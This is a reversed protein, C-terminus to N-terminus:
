GEAYRLTRPHTYPYSGVIWKFAFSGDPHTSVMENYSGGWGANFRNYDGNGKWLLIGNNFTIDDPSIDNPQIHGTVFAVKHFYAIDGSIQSANNMLWTENADTIRARKNTGDLYEIRFGSSSAAIKPIIQAWESVNVSFSYESDGITSLAGGRVHLGDGLTLMQQANSTDVAVLSMSEPANMPTVLARSLKAVIESDLHIEVSRGDEAVDIIISDNTTLPLIMTSPIEFIENGAEVKMTGSLEFGNEINSLVPSPIINIKTTDDFGIGRPLTLVPSEVYDGNEFTFKLKAETESVQEVSVDTLVANNLAAEVKKLWKLLTGRETFMSLITEKLIM